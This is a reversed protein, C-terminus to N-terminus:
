KRIVTIVRVRDSLIEYVVDIATRRSKHWRVRTRAPHSSPVTEDPNKLTRIVDAQSIQRQKMRQRAHGVLEIKGFGLVEALIIRSTELPGRRPFM